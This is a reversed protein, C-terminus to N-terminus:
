LEIIQHEFKDIELEDYIKNLIDSGYKNEFYIFNLSREQLDSNPYLSSSIKNIQRISTEHKRKVANEAKSKLEELYRFIKQQTKSSADGLTKDLQFLKEKLKDFTIEFEDKVKKFLEDTNDNSISTIIKEELQNNKVFVDKLNLNFKDISKQIGKELLTASSRPFIIPEEINFINYMPLLQAFYAIESPGGVYFATPLIYDQCIPRLLVNPSFNQPETEILDILEDLTFKVHKGKLRFGEDTPEILFRGSDDSYFLNVPKVKIQAQYLEELTASVKIIQETHTRFDSIEKKFIPKLIEKIKSDQPDLVLLGYKDFLSYLIQKFADKFSNGPKYFDKLRNLIDKTFETTRITREIEEFFLNIDETFNIKGVSIRDDDNSIKEGYDIVQFKNELNLIGISSVENFDHDDGELWFVPVFNFDSYRESLYECLKITTLTKYITYLPGGLIGLQQGTVVALTKNSKLKEINNHTKDSPSFHLYQESIIESLNFQRSSFSEAVKKFHPLYKDKNRFNIKYFRNVKEFNYVYDLFIKAYGPIEKYNLHM